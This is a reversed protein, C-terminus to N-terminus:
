PFLTGEAVRYDNRLARVIKTARTRDIVYSDAIARVQAAAGGKRWRLETCGGVLMIADDAGAPRLAAILAHRHQESGGPTLAAFAVEVLRKEGEMRSDVVRIDAPVGYAGFRGQSSLVAAVLWNADVDALAQGPPLREVQLFAGDGDKSRTEVDYYMGYALPYPSAFRTTAAVGGDLALLAQVTLLKGAGGAAGVTLVPELLVVGTKPRSRGSMAGAGLSSGPAGTLDTYGSISASTRMSASPDTPPPPSAARVPALSSAALLSSGLARGLQRRGLEAPNLAALTALAFVANMM